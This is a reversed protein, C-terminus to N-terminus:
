VAKYDSSDAILHLAVDFHAKIPNFERVERYWARYLNLARKRAEPYTSSLIPKASARLVQPIQSSAMAIWLTLHQDNTNIYLNVVGVVRRKTFLKSRMM